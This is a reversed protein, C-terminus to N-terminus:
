DFSVVQAPIEFRTGEAIGLRRMTGAKLEIVFKAPGRSSYDTTEDLRKMTYTNLVTGDPKLYAIDLDILTNRMWFRRPQSDRFVFIMGEDDQVDSDQLFMMGEGRKSETDMVFLRFVRDRWKVEVQKLDKLQHLRKPEVRRMVGMSGSDPGGAQEQATEVSSPSAAIVDKHASPPTAVCGIAFLALLLSPM